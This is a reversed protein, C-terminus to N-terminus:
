CDNKKHECYIFAVERIFRSINIKMKRTETPKHPLVIYIEKLVKVSSM